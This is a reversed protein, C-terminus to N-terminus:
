FVFATSHFWDSFLGFVFLGGHVAGEGVVFSDFSHQVFCLYLKMQYSKSASLKALWGKQNIKLLDYSM